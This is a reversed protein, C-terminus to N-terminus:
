YIYENNFQNYFEDYIERYFSENGLISAYGIIMLIGFLLALGSLIVGAIAMGKGGKQNKLSIIGLILGIIAGIVPLFPVCFLLASLIGLVLSAIAM